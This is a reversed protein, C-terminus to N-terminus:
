YSSAFVKLKEFLTSLPKPLRAAIQMDMQSRSLNVGLYEQIPFTAEELGALHKPFDNLLQEKQKFEQLKLHKEKEAKDLQISLDKREQLTNELFAFSSKFYEDNIPTQESIGNSLQLM